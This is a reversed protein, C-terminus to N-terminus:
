VGPKSLFPTINILRIGEGWPVNGLVEQGAKWVSCRTTLRDRFFFVTEITGAGAGAGSPASGGSAASPAARM